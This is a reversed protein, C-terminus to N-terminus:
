PLDTSISDIAKALHRTTKSQNAMVAILVGAQLYALGAALKWDIDDRSLLWIAFLLTANALAAVRDKFQAAEVDRPARIQARKRRLAEYFNAFSAAACFSALLGVWHMSDTLIVEVTEIHPHQRLVYGLWLPMAVQPAAIAFSAVVEMFTLPGVIILSGIQISYYALTFGAVSALLMGGLLVRGGADVPQSFLLGAAALAIATSGGAIIVSFEKWHAAAQDSLRDRV